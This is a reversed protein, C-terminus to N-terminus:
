LGDASSRSSQCRVEASVPVDILTVSLSNGFAGQEILSLRSDADFRVTQLSWCYDFCGKCLFEVSCPICISELSRCGHFASEGISRLNRDSEFEVTRLKNQYSCCFPRLEEISSPIVISEPSGIVWVLSRVDFDVLLGERVGFSLSGEEIEIWRIGTGNFVPDHISTVSAPICLRNLSQCDSFTYREITALRSPREFVLSQLSQCFSFCSFGLRGTLSPIAISRLSHCGFFASQEIECLHSDAEFAVLQLALCHSFCGYELRAVTRSILVAPFPCCQFASGSVSQVEFREGGHFVSNRLVIAGRSLRSDALRWDSNSASYELFPSVGLGSSCEKSVACTLPPSEPKNSVKNAETSSSLSSLAEVLSADLPPFASDPDFM